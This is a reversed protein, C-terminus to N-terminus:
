HEAPPESQRRDLVERIKGLLADPTFPKQLFATDDPLVNVQSLSLEIYGSM